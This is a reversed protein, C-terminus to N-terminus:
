DYYFPNQKAWSSGPYRAKLLTFARKGSHDHGQGYHGVHIIWHLAEPVRPDQPHKAAYDLIFDWVFITGPPVPAPKPDPGIPGPFAARRDPSFKGADTYQGPPPLLRRETVARPATASLFAPPRPVFGGAGCLGKCVVDPVRVRGEGLDTGAPVDAMQYGGNDYLVPAPPISDPDPRALVVWNPWSGGFAAVSGAPRTYDLLDVRLGPIKAFVLFEAFRRDDGRAAPIAAFDAAMVPLLAQLQRSLVDVAAADRLLVARAFSTLALDLRIPAPLAPDNGLAVRSSLAMRDILYRADDGLGTTSPDVTSSDSVKDFLGPASSGYGWDRSKCDEADQACVRARLAFRAMEGGNAAVLMREALFLNRTSATLDTRALVTDLLARTAAPDATAATLRVRHYLAMFYAPAAPDLAAAASLIPAADPDDPQALALVALLWAPHQGADYRDRAHALAAVRRAEAARARVLAPGTDDPPSPPAAAGTKFTGIWDLLEPAGRTGALTQLDKFDAAAQATLVPVDLASALRTAAAAPDARLQAMDGLQGAAAHLPSEAPIALAAQRAAVFDAPAKSALGQRLLARVRLYPAIGRWPSDADEAIAAFAAAAAPYDAGYFALAASQYRHDARLWDPADAPLAPLTAGPTSCGRFVADQADLWFRVDKSAAGHVKSRDALTLTATRFADGMCNPASTYDPGPRETAVSGANPSAGPVTKRADVWASVPDMTAGPTAGPTGCCPTALAEGADQGVAQGHLRRWGIALLSAPSTAMLVGPNGAYLMQRDVASGGYESLGWDGSPGDTSALAPVPSAALALVLALALAPGPIAMARSLRLAM